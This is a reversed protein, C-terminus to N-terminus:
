KMNHDEPKHYQTTQYTSLHVVHHGSNYKPPAQNSDWRACQSMQQNKIAKRVGELFFATTTGLIFGHSSRGNGKCDYKSITRHTLMIITQAVPLIMVYVVFLL